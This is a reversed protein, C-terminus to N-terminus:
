LTADTTEHAHLDSDDEYTLFVADEDSLNRKFHVLYLCYPIASVIMVVSILSVIPLSAFDIYVNDTIPVAHQLTFLVQYSEISAINNFLMHLIITYKLTRTETAICGFMIGILTAGFFHDLHLAGFFLASFLIGKWAGFREMWQNLLLGRFFYEELVPVLFAVYVLYLLTSVFYTGSSMSEEVPLNRALATIIDPFQLSVVIRFLLTAANSLCFTCIFLGLLKFWSFDSESPRVLASASLRSNKFYVRLLLITMVAEVIYFLIDSVADTSKPFVLYGLLLVFAYVITINIGTYLWLRISAPHELSKM